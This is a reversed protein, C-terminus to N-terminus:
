GTVPLEVAVSVLPRGADTGVELLYRGPEQHWRGDRRVALEALDFPLPVTVQGGAELAVRRFAVLRRRPRDVASGPLGAFVFLVTSGARAGTNAVAVDISGVTSGAPGVHLHLSEPDVVFTTYGLGAGFPRHPAVGDRDLKWQGHFLGYVVADADPEWPVLDAEDHPLAFPLRGGPERAGTLVDGLAAGGEMGPYWVQLTAGVEDLWPMVVASGGMVAVVTRDCAAATARVLAEDAPSLRLTRRDGGPAFTAPPGADGSPDPGPVTAPPPVEVSAAPGEHVVVAPATVPAEPPAPPPPFMTMMSRSTGVDIFEGEDEKTCGVVVVALDAGVAVSADSDHHVVDASAFASRVGDLLTSRDPPLVDSSGGDGLNPVAALRGLVAVRGVGPGVPLLGGPDALLVMSAAAAERALARHDPAALVSPDQSATFVDAFRLLTALTAEVRAEVDALDLRGAALAAPLHGARQQRFPMEIELGATVSLVPDHLGAIFDSTVFGDWGWEGRLVDTLLVTNEGCWNGNVSNYASMVSAVGEDAVRRFHPLYVEHLAREDVTVDVRFRAEEMSNCAFHKMCALVRTQLGRTLAAAMEGVHHPDEGYTEQARGWGPHRLLNMCVAGTYTAGVARLETGIVQGIREELDPDFTAGRAMSVPFCTAPGVVCGRPGDAFHIGPIGLREVVAAPWTHAHYGGAVMDVIGPWFETDGDLCGLKEEETMAAVLARAEAHHDGGARVRDAAAGFPTPGVTAGTDAPGSGPTV